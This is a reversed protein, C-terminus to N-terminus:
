EFMGISIELIEDGLYGLGVKEFAEDMKEFLFFVVTGQRTINRSVGPYNSTGRDWRVGLPSDRNILGIYIYLPYKYACRPYM